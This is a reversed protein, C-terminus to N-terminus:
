CTCCYRRLMSQTHQRQIYYRMMELENAIRMYSLSRQYWWPDNNKPYLYSILRRSLKRNLYPGAVDSFITDRQLSDSQRRRAMTRAAKLLAQAMTKALARSNIRPRKSPQDMSFPVNESNESNAVSPGLSVAPGGEATQGLSISPVTPSAQPAVASQGAAASETPIASQTQVSAGPATGTGAAQAVSGVGPTVVGVQTVPRTVLGPRAANQSPLPRQNALLATIVPYAQNFAGGQSSQTRALSLAIALSNLLQQMNTQPGQAMNQALAQTLATTLVQPPQNSAQAQNAAQLLAQSLVQPQSQTVSSQIASSLLEALAGMENGGLPNSMLGQQIQGQLPSGLIGVGYMAAYPNPTTMGLPYGMTPMVGGYPYMATEMGYYPPMVYPEPLHYHLSRYEPEEYHDHHYDHHHYDHHYDDHHYDDYHHDYYHYDDHYHPEIVHYHPEDIHFTQYHPEDQAILIKPSHPPSAILIQPQTQQAQVQIVQPQPAPAQVVQPQATQVEPQQEGPDINLSLEIDQNTENGTKLAAEKAEYSPTPTTSTPATPPPTPTTPLTPLTTPLFIYPSTQPASQSLGLAAALSSMAQAVSGPASQVGSPLTSGYPPMTEGPSPLTVGYPLTVGPAITVAQPLVPNNGSPVVQPAPTDVKKNADTVGKSGGGKDTDLDDDPLINNPPLEIYSDSNPDSNSLTSKLKERLKAAIPDNLNSRRRLPTSKQNKLSSERNNIEQDFIRRNEAIGSGKTDRKRLAPGRNGTIGNFPNFVVGNEYSSRRYVGQVNSNSQEFGSISRLVLGLIVIGCINMM